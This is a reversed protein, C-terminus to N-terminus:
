TLRIVPKDEMRIKIEHSISHEMEAVKAEDAEMDELRQEYKNSLIDIPEHLVEVSIPTFTRCFTQRVKEGCEKIDM